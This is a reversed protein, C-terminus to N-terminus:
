KQKKEEAQKYVKNSDIKKVDKLGTEGNGGYGKTDQVSKNKKLDKVETAEFM